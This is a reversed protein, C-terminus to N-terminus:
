PEKRVERLNVISVHPGEKCSSLLHRFYADVIPCSEQDIWDEPPTASKLLILRGLQWRRVVQLALTDSTVEWSRPLPDQRGADHRSFRLPDIVAM